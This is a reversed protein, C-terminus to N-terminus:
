GILIISSDGAGRRLAHVQALEPDNIWALAADKDPFSLVGALDPAALSGELATPERSASELTGGHKALADGAKERYAAMSEPNDIKLYVLAYIM